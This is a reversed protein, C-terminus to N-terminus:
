FGMEEWQRGMEILSNKLGRNNREKFFNFEDERWVVNTFLPHGVSFFNQFEPTGEAALVAADRPSRADPQRDLALCRRTAWRMAEDMLQDDPVVSEVVGWEKFEAASVGHSRDAADRSGPERGGQARAGAPEALLRRFRYAGGARRIHASEGAIIIDAAIAMSM